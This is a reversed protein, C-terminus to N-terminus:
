AALAMAPKSTTTRSTDSANTSASATCEIDGSLQGGEEIVV